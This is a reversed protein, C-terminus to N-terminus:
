LEGGKGARGGAKLGTRVKRWKESKEDAHMPRQPQKRMDHEPGHAIVPNFVAYM